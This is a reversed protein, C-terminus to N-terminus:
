GNKKAHHIITHQTHNNEKGIYLRISSNIISKISVWVGERGGERAVIVVTSVTLPLSEDRAELQEERLEIWNM